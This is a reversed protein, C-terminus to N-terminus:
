PAVSVRWCRENEKLMAVNQKCCCVGLAMHLAIVVSFLNRPHTTISLYCRPPCSPKLPGSREQKPLKGNGSLAKGSSFICLTSPQAYHPLFNGFSTLMGLFARLESINQPMPANAIAEVRSSSPLIGQCSIQHGLYEVERAM